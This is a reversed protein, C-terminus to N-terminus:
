QKPGLAGEVRTAIDSDASEGRKADAKKKAKGKTVAKYYLSAFVAFTGLMQGQSLPHAYVICSLLIQLFQRTTMATAFVVAGETRIIAYIIQQGLMACMSLGLADWFLAPYEAVFALSDALAGSSVLTFISLLASSFNVYIMMNYTSVSTGRFMREQITSTFGDCFLYLGMLGIGYLSDDQGTQPAKTEGSMLFIACGFTIIVAEFYDQRGYKKIGVGLTGLVLVPIVKGCKGLTQTPFSVYKLAEYQCWTAAFNSISAGFYNSLPAQNRLSEGSRLALFVAITMTVVRNNFVLFATNKFFIPNGDADMGYPKTMIREQVVGYLLFFLFLGSILLVLRVTKPDRLFAGLASSEPPPNANEM